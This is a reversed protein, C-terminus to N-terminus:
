GFLFLSVSYQKNYIGLYIPYNNLGIEPENFTFRNVEIAGMKRLIKFAIPNTLRAYFHKVGGVRAIYFTAYFMWSALGGNM